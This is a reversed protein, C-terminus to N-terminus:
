INVKARNLLQIVEDRERSLEQNEEFFYKDLIEEYISVATAFDNNQEM